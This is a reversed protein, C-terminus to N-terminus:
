PADHRSECTTPQEYAMVAVLSHSPSVMANWVGVPICSALPLWGGKTQPRVVALACPCRTAPYTEAFRRAITHTQQSPRFSPM